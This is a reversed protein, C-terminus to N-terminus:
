AEDDDKAAPHPAPEMTRAEGDEDDDDDPGGPIAYAGRLWRGLDVDACRKSCFPRTALTQPKGCIACRAGAPTKVFPEPKSQAM